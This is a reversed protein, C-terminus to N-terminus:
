NGGFFQDYESGAHNLHDLVDYTSHATQTQQAQKVYQLAIRQAEEPTKARKVDEMPDLGIDGEGAFTLAVADSDDPSCGIVDKIHKKAKLKVRRDADSDDLFQNTSQKMLEDDKPVSGSLKLWNLYAYYMFSRMNFCSAVPSSSGFWVPTIYRSFGLRELRTILGEATGADIFVEQPRRKEIQKALFDAQYVSDKNELRVIPYLLPGQRAAFSSHDVTFGVDFGFVLPYQRVLDPDVQRNIAPFYDEPTILVEPVAAFFNCEYERGFADARMLRKMKAVQEETFVGTSYVDYIKSAWEPFTKDQGRQYFEFFLDLGKVTGIIVAKGRRDTMAPYLVEYFAYQANSWSAMEDFVARDIYIGRLSEINEAGALYIRKNRPFDIRLETENFKVLGAESLPGLYQKFYAWVISKAQKQNPAIYYGRYNEIDQGFAEKILWNAALVTKGMRRHCVGVFFQVPDADVLSLIERQEPRPSFPIEIRRAM